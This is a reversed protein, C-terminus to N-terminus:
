LGLRLMLKNFSSSSTKSDASKFSASKASLSSLSKSQGSSLSKVRKDIAEFVAASHKKHLSLTRERKLDSARKTIKKLEDRTPQASAASAASSSQRSARKKSPSSNLAIWPHLLTKDLTLRKASKKHLMRVILDACQHSVDAPLPRIRGDRVNQLTCAVNDPNNPDEFPYVGAVMLYLMVGM